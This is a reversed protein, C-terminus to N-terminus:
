REVEEGLVLLVQVVSDPMRSDLAALRDRQQRIDAGLAGQGTRFQLDTRALVVAHGAEADRRLLDGLGDADGGDTVDICREGLDVSSSRWIGIRTWADVRYARAIQGGEAASFICVALPPM